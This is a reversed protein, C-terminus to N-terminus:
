SKYRTETTIFEEYSNINNLQKIITERTPTTIEQIPENPEEIKKNNNLRVILSLLLILM